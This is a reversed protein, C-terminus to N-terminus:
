PRPRINKIWRTSVRGNSVMRIVARDGKIEEIVGAWHGPNHTSVWEPEGYRAAGYVTMGVEPEWMIKFWEPRPVRISTQGRAHALKVKDGVFGIVEGSFSLKWPKNHESGSVMTGILEQRHSEYYFTTM